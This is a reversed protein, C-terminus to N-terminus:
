CEMKPSLTMNVIIAIDGPLDEYFRINHRGNWINTFMIGLAVLLGKVVEKGVMVNM